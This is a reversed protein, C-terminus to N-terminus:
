KRATGEKEQGPLSNLDVEVLLQNVERLKAWFRYNRKATFTKGNYTVQAGKELRFTLSSFDEFGKGQRIYVRDCIIVSGKEMRVLWDHTGGVARYHKWPSFDPDDHIWKLFHENRRERYVRFNWPMALRLKTGIDPVFLGVPDGWVRNEPVKEAKAKARQEIKDKEQDLYTRVAICLPDLSGTVAYETVGRAIVLKKALEDPGLKRAAPGLLHMLFRGERHFGQVRDPISLVIFDVKDCLRTIGYEKVARKAEEGDYLMWEPTHRHGHSRYYRHWNGLDTDFGTLDVRLQEDSDSVIKSGTIAM